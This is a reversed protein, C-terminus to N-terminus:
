IKDVALLTSYQTFSAPLWRHEDEHRRILRRAMSWLTVEFQKTEEAGKYDTIGSILLSRM